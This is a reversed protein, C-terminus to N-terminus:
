EAEYTWIPRYFVGTHHLLYDRAIMREEAHRLIAGQVYQEFLLFTWWRLLLLDKICIALATMFWGFFVFLSKVGGMNLQTLPAYSVNFGDFESDSTNKANHHLNIINKNRGSWQAYWTIINESFKGDSVSHVNLHSLNHFYAFPLASQSASMKNRIIAANFIGFARYIGFCFYVFLFLVWQLQCSFGDVRYGEKELIERWEVPLPCKIPNGSGISYLIAINFRRNVLLQTYLYQRVVLSASETSAGFMTKSAQRKIREFQKDALIDKLEALLSLRGQAKLKRYGRMIVRLRSRQKKAIIKSIVDPLLISINM